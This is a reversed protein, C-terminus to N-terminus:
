DDSRGFRLHGYDDFSDDARARRMLGYDRYLARPRFDEEDDPLAMARSKGECCVTFTTLAVTLALAIMTAVRM